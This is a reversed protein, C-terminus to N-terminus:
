NILMIAAVSRLRRHKLVTPQAVSPRDVFWHRDFADVGGQVQLRVYICRADLFVLIVATAPTRRGYRRYGLAVTQSRTAFAIKLLSQLGM